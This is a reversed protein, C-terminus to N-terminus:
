EKYNLLRELKDRHVDLSGFLPKAPQLWETCIVPRGDLKTRLLMDDEFAGVIAYLSARVVDELAAIPVHVVAAQRSLIYRHTRRRASWLGQLRTLPHDMYKKSNGGTSCLKALAETALLLSLLSSVVCANHRGLQAVGYRDEVKSRATLMAAARASWCCLQYSRLVLRMVENVAPVRPKGESQSLQAQPAVASGAQKPPAQLTRTLVGTMGDLENLCQSIVRRYTSGSKEFLMTRQWSGGDQEALLCLDLLALHRLLCADGDSGKHELAALLLGAPDREAAASGPPPAFVQRETMIVSAQVLISCLSCCFSALALPTLLAPLDQLFHRSGWVAGRGAWLRRAAFAVLATAALEIASRCAQPLSLKVRFVFRRQIAPFSLPPVGLQLRAAAHLGGLLAGAAALCAASPVCSVSSNRMKMASSAPLFALRGPGSGGDSAVANRAAKGKRGKHVKQRAGSAAKPAKKTSVKFGAKGASDRKGSHVLVSAMGSRAQARKGERRNLLKADLPWYAYPELRGARQADGGARGRKDAYEQGTYGWGKKRAATSAPAARKGSGNGAARRQGQPGKQVKPQHLRGQSRGRSGTELWEADGMNADGDDDRRRKGRDNSSEAVILRGDPGVELDGEEDGAQRQGWRTSPPASLATRTRQVDLLDLPEGSEGALEDKPLRALLKRSRKSMSTAASRGASRRTSKVPGAASGGAAATSPALDAASGDDDDEDSFIDTHHFSSRRATSARSRISKSDEEGETKELRKKEEREKTKRIHQLLKIHEEPMVAAVTNYGCRRVLREVIVRVKMRFQNKADECWLLLGEILSALYPELEGAPLRAIVVKVLGLVAKIIERSKSHLLLLATPLLEPVTRVLHVSFEYLLRALAVVTASVMQSTSGALGGMVMTFFQLLKDPSGGSNSDATSHALTVLLDYAVNRTKKNVEKTALIIESILLSATDDKRADGIKILHVILTHLCIIRHRKASAQCAQLSDVLLSLLEKDNHELISPHETLLQALLKYAKKQVLADNDKLAPKASSLLMDTSEEDLGKSLALALDMFTCRRASASDTVDTQMPVGDSAHASADSAEITVALLRRMIEVFYLRVVERPSVSALAAITDQINGRRESPTTLFINFLLPLFNKSFAAIATLNAEAQEPSYFREKVSEKVLSLQLGEEEDEVVERGKKPRGAGKAKLVDGRARRNQAILKGQFAQSTDRPHNCFAPLLAWLLYVCSEANKAAIPRGEKTCEVSRARLRTAIPVLITAFAQLSAGICHQKLIPLLWARSESLDPGDMDLPLISLLKDPGMAAVAAGIALHLQKRCRMDSDPLEQLEGLNVVTSQMLVASAPGLKDFLAALILLGMDWASIYQYGLISEMATCVRELPTKAGKPRDSGLGAQKSAEVIMADDICSIILSRLAEASTYVVEEQEAALNGVLNYVALPLKQACLIHDLDHLRAFAQQVFQATAVAVDADRREAAGQQQQLLVVDLIQSLALASTASGPDSALVHLTALVHRSLLPQRLVLLGALEEALKAAATTSVAPLLKKLAGLMHLARVAATMPVVGGDMPAQAVTLAAVAAARARAKKGPPVVQSQASTAAALVEQCRGVVVESALDHSAPASRLSELVEAACIQARKRVLIGFPRALPLWNAKDAVQLLHQLCQLAAKLCNAGTAPMSALAALVALAHEEKSRLVAAPVRPLVVALLLCIATRMAEGDPEAAQRELSAMLAAFYTSASPKIGQEALVEGTAAVVACLHQHETQRSNRYRRLTDEFVGGGGGGGGATGGSGAASGGNAGEARLGRGEPVAM